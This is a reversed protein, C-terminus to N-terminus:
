IIMVEIVEASIPILLHISLLTEFHTLKMEIGWATAATKADATEALYHMAQLLVDYEDRTASLLSRRLVWRTPCAPRRVASHLEDGPYLEKHLKKVLEFRKRSDRIFNSQYNLYQMPDYTWRSCEIAHQLDLNVGHNKCYVFLAEPVIDLIRSKVGNHIGTMNAARDYVQACCYGIDINLRLLVDMIASANKEGTTLSMTVSGLFYENITFDSDVCRLIVSLQEQGTIDTTGDSCIIFYNCNQIETAIRSQVDHAMLKIIENQIDASMYELRNSSLCNALSTSDTSQLKMLNYLLGSDTVHARIPLACEGLFKLSTIVRWQQQSDMISADRKASISDQGKSFLQVELALKHQRSNKHDNFKEIAKKWKCFGININTFAPEIKLSNRFKRNQLTKTCPFCIVIDREQVYHLFDYTEFWHIQPKTVLTVIKELVDSLYVNLTM